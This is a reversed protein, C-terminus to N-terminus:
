VEKDILKEIALCLALVDKEYDFEAYGIWKQLLSKTRSWGIRKTLEPALWKFCADLSETLNPFNGPKVHEHTGAPYEYHCIEEPYEKGYDAQPAYCDKHKVAKFGAWEAWSASAFIVFSVVGHGVFFELGVNFTTGVVEHGRIFEM